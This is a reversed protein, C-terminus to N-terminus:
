SFHFSLGYTYNVNSLAGGKGSEVFFFWSICTRTKWQSAVSILDFERESIVASVSFLCLSDRLLLCLAVLSHPPESEAKVTKRSPFFIAEDESISTQQGTQLFMKLSGTIRAHLWLKQLSQTVHPFPFGISRGSQLPDDCLLGGRFRANFFGHSDRKSCLSWPAETTDSSRQLRWESFSLSKQRSWWCGTHM